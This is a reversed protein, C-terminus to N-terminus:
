KLNQYKEEPIKVLLESIKERNRYFLAVKAGSIIQSKGAQILRTSVISGVAGTCGTIIIRKDKFHRIAEMLDFHPRPPGGGSHSTPPPRPSTLKAISGFLFDM